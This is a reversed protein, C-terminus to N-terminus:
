FVQSPAPVDEHHAGRTRLQRAQAPSVALCGQGNSQASQRSIAHMVLQDILSAPLLTRLRTALTLSAIASAVALERTTSEAKMPSM